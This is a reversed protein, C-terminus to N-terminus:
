RDEDLGTSRCPDQENSHRDDDGDCGTRTKAVKWRAAARETDLWRKEFGANLPDLPLDERSPWTMLWLLLDECSPWTILAPRLM